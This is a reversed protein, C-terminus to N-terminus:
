LSDVFSKWRGSGHLLWPFYVNRKAFSILPDLQRQSEKSLLRVNYRTRECEKWVDEDPLMLFRRTAREVVGAEHLDASHQELIVFGSAQLESTWRDIESEIPRQIFATVGKAAPVDQSIMGKFSIISLCDFKEPPNPPLASGDALASNYRIFTARMDDCSAAELQLESRIRSLLAEAERYVRALDDFSITLIPGDVEVLPGPPPDGHTSSDM